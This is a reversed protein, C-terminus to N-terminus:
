HLPAHAQTHSLRRSGNNSGMQYWQWNHVTREKERKIWIQANRHQKQQRQVNARTFSTQKNRERVCNDVRGFSSGHWIRFMEITQCGNQLQINIHVFARLCARACMVAACCVPVYGIFFNKPLSYVLLLFFFSPFFNWLKIQCIFFHCSTKTSEVRVQLTLRSFFFFGVIEMKMLTVIYLICSASHSKFSLKNWNSEM